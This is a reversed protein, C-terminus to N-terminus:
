HPPNSVLGWGDSAYPTQPCLGWRQAIKLLILANKPKNLSKFEKKLVYATSLQFPFYFLIPQFM